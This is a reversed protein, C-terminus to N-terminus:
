RATLTPLADTMRSIRPFGAHFQAVAIAVVQDHQDPPIEYAELRLVAEGVNVYCFLLESNRSWPSREGPRLWGEFLSPCPHPVYGVITAGAARARGLAELLLNALEDSAADIAPMPGGLLAVTGPPHAELLEGAREMSFAMRAAERDEGPGVLIAESGCVVQSHESCTMSVWAVRILRAHASRRPNAVGSDAGVSVVSYPRPVPPVILRDGSELLEIHPLLEQISLM